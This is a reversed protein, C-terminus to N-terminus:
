EVVVPMPLPVVFGNRYGMKERFFRMIEDKVNWAGIMIYDPRHRMLEDPSVVPIRVGPCFLGQKRPNADGM